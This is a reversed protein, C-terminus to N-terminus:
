RADHEAILRDLLQRLQSAAKPSLVIRHLLQAELEGPAGERSRSAGFNLVVQQPASSASAITCYSSRLGSINWNVGAPKGPPYPNREVENDPPMTM